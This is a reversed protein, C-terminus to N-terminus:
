ANRTNAKEPISSTCRGVLELDLQHIFGRADVERPDEALGGAQGDGVFTASDAMDM